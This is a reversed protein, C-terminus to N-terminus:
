PEDLARSQSAQVSTNPEEVQPARLLDRKSQLSNRNKYSTMSFNDPIGQVGQQPPNISGYTLEEMDYPMEDIPNM